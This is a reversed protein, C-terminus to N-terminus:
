FHLVGLVIGAILCVLSVGWIWFFSAKIHDKIEVGALGTGLFTAPVVPSIFTACNRCVVMAIATHAPDVGFENGIGILVPLLGFFYSDTCFLLTLPVSLVGIILPLFRGMSHPIFAALVNAMHVMIESEELVGLFVGAALITSAMMLAPGSHSKIIKNQLKAGPYNVLLAVACGILFIYYSPVDLFILCVIVILTLVANFVFLGPRALEKSEANEESDEETTEGNKETEASKGFASAGAGTKLVADGASVAAAIGAGRKKEINGWIFATALAIVVGVIQMPLIKMWLENPEIGLVTASRMTPGGWPLLNMVGMATVCILLLTTPRMNLRKYVPLMPPITILFTSAGGGDLHGIMAIICTMMAVGVVNSGVKKMLANIIRDFMGADTMIGFFLVSFIFLAATSHVGAVGAQIFEGMESITFTGTAVLLAATVTSVGIFALAPVTVNRLLLVIASLSRVRGPSKEM